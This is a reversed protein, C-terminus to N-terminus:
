FGRQLLFCHTHVSVGLWIVSRGCNLQIKIQALHVEVSMRNPSVDAAAANPQEPKNDTARGGEGAGPTTAKTAAKALGEGLFRHKHYLHIYTQGNTQDQRPCTVGFNLTTEARQYGALPCAGSVLGAGAMPPPPYDSPILQLDTIAYLGYRSERLQELHQAQTDVWMPVGDPPPTMDMEIVVEENENVCVSQEELRGPLSYWV